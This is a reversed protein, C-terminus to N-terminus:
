REVPRRKKEVQRAKQRADNIKRYAELNKRNEDDSWGRVPVSPIQDSNDIPVKRYQPMMAEVHERAKPDWIEELEFTMITGRPVNYVGYITSVQQLDKFPGWSKIDDVTPVTEQAQVTQTGDVVTTKAM